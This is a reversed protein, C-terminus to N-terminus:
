LSNMGKQLKGDESIGWSVPGCGKLKFPGYSIHTIAQLGSHGEAFPICELIVPLVPSGGGSM